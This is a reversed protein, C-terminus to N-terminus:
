DEETFTLVDPQREIRSWVFPLRVVEVGTARQAAAVAAAREPPGGSDEGYVGLFAPAAAGAPAAAILGVAAALMALRRALSGPVPRDDWAGVCKRSYHM